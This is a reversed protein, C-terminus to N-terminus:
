RRVVIDGPRVELRSHIIKAAATTNQAELVVIDGVVLHAIKRDKLTQVMEGRYRSTHLGEYTTGIQAANVILDKPDFPPQVRYITFRDGAKVGDRTGLGIFCVDGEGMERRDNKGLLISSALGDEPYPSLRNSKEGTFKVTAKPGAPVLVDGKYIADCSTLVTGVAGGAGRSEIRVTGLEKYYIGLLDLTLRDHVKGEARVIKFVDGANATVLGSGGLHVLSGELVVTALGEQETGAVFLDVPLLSEHIFGLCQLEKPMAVTGRLEEHLKAYPSSELARQAQAPLLFLATWTATLVCRM